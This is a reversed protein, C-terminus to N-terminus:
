ALRSEKIAALLSSLMSGPSESSHAAVNDLKVVVRDNAM